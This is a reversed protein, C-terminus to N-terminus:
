QSTARPKTVQHDLNTLRFSRHRQIHEQHEDPTPTPTIQELVMTGPQFHRIHLAVTDRSSLSDGDRTATTVSNGSGNRPIIKKKRCWKTSYYIILGLFMMTVSGIALYWWRNLEM